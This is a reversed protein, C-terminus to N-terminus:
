ILFHEIFAITEPEIQLMTIYFRILPAHFLYSVLSAIAIYPGYPIVREKKDAKNMQIMIVGGIVGILASIFITELVGMLGIISGLAGLMKVDGGGLAERKFLLKGIFGVALFILFGCVVGITARVFGMTGFRFWASGYGIVLIAINLSDPIIYHDLDILFISLLCSFLLIGVFFDVGPGLLALIGIWCLGNITEILPYRFSIHEGCFGCKGRLFTYSLVPINHYWRLRNGCQPCHSPPTVLSEERPLRWIVVNLFSGVSIGFLFTFLYMFITFMTDMTSIYLYRNTPCICFISNTASLVISTM